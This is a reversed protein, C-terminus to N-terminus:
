CKELMFLKNFLLKLCYHYKKAVEPTLGSLLNICKLTFLVVKVGAEEWNYLSNFNRTFFSLGQGLTVASLDNVSELHQLNKTTGFSTCHESVYCHM